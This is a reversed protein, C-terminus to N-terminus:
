LAASHRQSERELFDLLALYSSGLLRTVQVSLALTAGYVQGM